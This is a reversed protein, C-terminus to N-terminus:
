EGNDEFIFRGFEDFLTGPIISVTEGPKQASITVPCIKGYFSPHISAIEKPAASANPSLMAAKHTSIGSYFNVLDYFFQHKLDKMFFKVLEYENYDISSTNQEHIGALAITSLRRMFPYMLQEIWMLRKYHIDIFNVTKGDIFVDVAKNILENFSFEKNYCAKYLRKTFNDFFINDFLTELQKKDKICFLNLYYDILQTKTIKQQPIKYKKYIENLLSKDKIFYELFYQIPINKGALITRSAGIKFYITISTIMGYLKISNEKNTIPFDYIYLAPCYYSGNLYFYNDNVLRPFSFKIFLKDKNRDDPDEIIVSYKNLEYGYMDRYKILEEEEISKLKIYGNTNLELYDFATKVYDKLHNYQYKRFQSIEIYKSQKPPQRIYKNLLNM